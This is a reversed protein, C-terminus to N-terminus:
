RKVPLMTVIQKATLKLQFVASHNPAWPIRFSGVARGDMQMDGAPSGGDVCCDMKGSLELVSVGDADLVNIKKIPLRVQVVMSAWKRGGKDYVRTVKTNSQARDVDFGLHLAKGLGDALASVDIDYPGPALKKPMMQDFLWAVGDLEGHGGKGNFEKELETIGMGGVMKGDLYTFRYKEGNHEAVVTKGAYAMRTEVSKELRSAREYARRLKLPRTGTTDAGILPEETYILGFGDTSREGQWVKAGAGDNTKGVGSAAYSNSETTWLRQVKIKEGPEAFRRIVLESDEAASLGAATGLVALATLVRAM